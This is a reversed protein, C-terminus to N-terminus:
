PKMAHLIIVEERGARRWIDDLSACTIITGTKSVHLPLSIHLDPHCNKRRLTTKPKKKLELGEEGTMNETKSSARDRAM